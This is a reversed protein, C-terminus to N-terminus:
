DHFRMRRQRQIKCCLLGYRASYNSHAASGVGVASIYEYDLSVFTDGDTLTIELQLNLM